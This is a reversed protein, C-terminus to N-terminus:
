NGYEVSGFFEVLSLAMRRNGPNGNETQTIRILSVPPSSAPLKFFATISNGILSQDKERKDVVMWSGKKDSVSVTWSTPAVGNAGTKWSRLSYGELTLINPSFDFLISAEYQDANPSCFYSTDDNLVNIASYKDSYVSATVVPQFGNRIIGNIPQSAIFPFVRTKLNIRKLVKYFNNKLFVYRLININFDPSEIIKSLNSDQFAKGPLFKLLRSNHNNSFDGKQTLFEILQEDNIKLCPSQFVLDYLPEPYTKVIDYCGTINQAIKHTMLEVNISSNFGLLALEAIQNITKNSLIVPITSKALSTILLECAAKFLYECNDPTIEVTGGQLITVVQGFDGGKINVYLENTSADELMLMFIKQSYNSAVFSRVEFNKTENNEETHITFDSPMEQAIKKLFQPYHFSYTSPKAM